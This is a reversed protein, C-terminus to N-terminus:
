HGILDRISHFVGLLQHLPSLLFSSLSVNFSADEPKETCYTCLSKWQCNVKVCVRWGGVVWGTTEGVVEDEARGM